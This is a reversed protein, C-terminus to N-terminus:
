RDCPVCSAEMSLSRTSDDPSSQVQLLELCQRRIFGPRVKTRLPDGYGYEIDHVVQIWYRHAHLGNWINLSAMCPGPIAAAALGVVLMLM